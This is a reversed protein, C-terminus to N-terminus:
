KMTLTHTFVHKSDLWFPSILFFYWCMTRTRAHTKMRSETQTGFLIIPARSRFSCIYKTTNLANSHKIIHLFLWLSGLAEPQLLAPWRKATHLCHLANTRERHTIFLPACVVNEKCRTIKLALWFQYESCPENYQTHTDHFHRSITHIPHEGYVHM